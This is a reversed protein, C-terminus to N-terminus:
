AAWFCRSLSPNKTLVAAPGIVVAESASIQPLPDPTILPPGSLVTYDSPLRIRLTSGIKAGASAFEKEYQENIHRLFANSETFLRISERTIMQVTLLNNSRYVPLIIDAKVPMLSSAKVIAPAALGVGILSLFGRRGIM